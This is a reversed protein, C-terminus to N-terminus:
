GPHQGTSPPPPAWRRAGATGPAARSLARGREARGAEREAPSLLGARPGGRARPLTTDPAEDSASDSSEVKEKRSRAAADVASPGAPPGGRGPGLAAGPGPLTSCAAAAAPGRLRKAASASFSLMPSSTVLSVSRLLALAPRALRM